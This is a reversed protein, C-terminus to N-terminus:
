SKKLSWDYTEDLRQSVIQFGVDKSRMWWWCCLVMVVVFVIILYHLQVYYFIKSRYKKKYSYSGPQLCMPVDSCGHLVMLYGRVADKRASSALKTWVTWSIETM